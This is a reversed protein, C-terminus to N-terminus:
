VADALSRDKDDVLARRREVRRGLGKEHLADGFLLPLEAHRDDQDSVSKRGDAAGVLDNDHAFPVDELLASM